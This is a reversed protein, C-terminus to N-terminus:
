PQNQALFGCPVEPAEKRREEAYDLAFVRSVGGNTLAESILIFSM